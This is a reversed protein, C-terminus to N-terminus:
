ARRRRLRAILAALSGSLLLPASPEPVAAIDTSRNDFIHAQASYVSFGDPLLFIPGPGGFKLTDHFASKTQSDAANTTTGAGSSSASAFLALRLDFYQNVPASFTLDGSSNCNPYATAPPFYNVFTCNSSYSNNAGQNLIQVDFSVQALSYAQGSGSPGTYTEGSLHLGALVFQINAGTFAPPSTIMFDDFVADAWATTSQDLFAGTLSEIHTFAYAGIAGDRGWASGIEQRINGDTNNNYEYYASYGGDAPNYVGIGAETFARYIADAAAIGPHLVVCSAAIGIAVVRSFIPM